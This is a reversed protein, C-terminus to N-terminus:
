GKESWAPRLITLLRATRAEWSRLARGGAVTIEYLRKARGGRQRTPPGTAVSLLKKEVLRSLSTYLAGSAIERGEIRILEESIPVGYAERENATLGLVVGIIRAELDSIQQVQNDEHM